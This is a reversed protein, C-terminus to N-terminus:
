AIWETKLPSYKIYVHEYLHANVRQTNIQNSSVYFANATRIVLLRLYNSDKGMSFLLPHPTPTIRFLSYWSQHLLSGLWWCNHYQGPSQKVLTERVRWFIREFNTYQLFWVGWSFKLSFSQIHVWAMSQACTCFKLKFNKDFIHNRANGIKALNNQLARSVNTFCVGSEGLINRVWCWLPSAM